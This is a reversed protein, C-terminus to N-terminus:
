NRQIEVYATAEPCRMTAAQPFPHLSCLHANRDGPKWRAPVASIFFVGSLFCYTVLYRIIVTSYHLFTLVVFLTFMWFSYHSTSNCLASIPSLRRALWSRGAWTKASAACEGETFLYHQLFCTPRLDPIGMLLRHYYVAKAPLWNFWVLCPPATSAM